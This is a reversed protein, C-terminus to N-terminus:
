KVGIWEQSAAVKQKKDKKKGGEIDSPGEKKWKEFDDYHVEKIRKAPNILNDTLLIWGIKELPEGYVKVFGIILPPFALLFSCFLRIKPFEIGQFLVFQGMAGLAFSVGLSVAQRASFNGIFKAKYKLIDQPIPAEVM